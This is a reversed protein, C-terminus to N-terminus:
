ISRVESRIRLVEVISAGKAQAHDRLVRDFHCRSVHYGPGRTAATAQKGAWRSINGDNPYFGAADVTDLLSLHRLAPSLVAPM